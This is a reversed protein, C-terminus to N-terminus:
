LDIPFIYLTSMHQYIQNKGKQLVNRGLLQGKVLSPVEIDGRPIFIAEGKGLPAVLM